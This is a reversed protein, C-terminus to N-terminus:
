DFLRVNGEIPMARECIVTATHTYDGDQEFAYYLHRTLDGTPHRKLLVNLLQTYDIRTAHTVFPVIQHEALVSVLIAEPCTTTTTVISLKCQFIVTSQRLNLRGWLNVLEIFVKITNHGPKGRGGLFVFYDMKPVAVVTDTSPSPPTPHDVCHDPSAM